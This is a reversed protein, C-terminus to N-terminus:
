MVAVKIIPHRHKSKCLILHLTYCLLDKRLTYSKNKMGATYSHKSIISRFTIHTHMLLNRKM